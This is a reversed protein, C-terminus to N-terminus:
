IVMIRIVMANPAHRSDRSKELLVIRRNLKSNDLRLQNEVDKDPM